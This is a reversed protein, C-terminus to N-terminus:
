AALREGLRAEAAALTTRAAARVEDHPDTAAMARLRPLAAAIDLALWERMAGWRLHFAPAHSAAEFCEAADHRGSRRLLTLLMATRSGADDLTAVRALRGEPLTYERMMPAGGYRITATLTTVDGSAGALLGGIVRGDQRVVMGDGLVRDPLPRCPPEAAATFGEAMPAARWRRWRAGGARHYRVVALRGPVVVARPEPARSLAEASLTTAAISVAPHDFLIAGIRAADRHVRLPPEYLPDDALATMLPALLVALWRTDALLAQAVSAAGEADDAAVADFRDTLARYAPGKQWAGAARRSREHAAALAAPDDLWMPVETLTREASIPTSRM